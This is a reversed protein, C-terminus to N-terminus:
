GNLGREKKHRDDLSRYPPSKIKTRISLDRVKGKHLSGTAEVTLNGEKGSATFRTSGGDDIIDTNPLLFQPYGVILNNLQIASSGSKTEVVISPNDFDSIPSEKKGNFAVSEVKYTGDIESKDCATFTFTMLCVVALLLTRRM